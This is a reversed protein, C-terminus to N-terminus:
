SKGEQGALDPRVLYEEHRGLMAQIRWFGRYDDPPMRIVDHAPVEAVKKEGEYLEIILM